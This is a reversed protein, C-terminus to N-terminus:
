EENRRIPISFALLRTELMLGSIEGEENTDYTFKNNSIGSFLKLGAKAIDDLQLEDFGTKGRIKDGLLMKEQLNENGSFEKHFFEPPIALALVPKEVDIFAPKGSLYAPLLTDYGAVFTEKEVASGKDPEGTNKDPETKTRDATVTKGTSIQPETKETNQQIQVPIEPVPEKTFQVMRAVPVDMENNQKLFVSVAFVLILMAAIRFASRLLKVGPTEKYLSIKKPFLITEDAKMRTRMFQKYEKKKEPHENLYKKFGAIEEETFDKELIAICANDFHDQLDYKEKYLKEKLPFVKKPPPISFLKIKQLEEKLDPNKQLFELFEDIRTDDLTGDLYDIFFVEYNDRTIRM